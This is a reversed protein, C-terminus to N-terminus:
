SGGEKWDLKFSISFLVNRVLAESQDDTTHKDIETSRKEEDALSFPVCM